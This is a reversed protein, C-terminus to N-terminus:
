GSAPPGALRALDRLYEAVDHDLGFYRKRIQGEDDILFTVVVHEIAGDPELVTGVGYSRLVADVAEEPGTLFSWSALDAGRAEGYARLKEPTDRAPDLSISVFRVRERLAAPLSRQVDVHIGTLIPCPGPCTTYVFDLLVWRGRLSVLSVDRGEQDVLAFGPAPDDEPAVAALGGTTGGAGPDGGGIEDIEVIRYRGDASALRFRVRDGPALGALLEASPVDFNMTMAPMLGEIDDHAIVLQRLDADVERVVGTGEHLSPGCAALLAAAIAAVRRSV